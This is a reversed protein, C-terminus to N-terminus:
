WPFFAFNLLLHHVQVIYCMTPLRCQSYYEPPGSQENSYRVNIHPRAKQLGKEEQGLATGSFLTGLGIGVPIRVGTQGNFLLGM